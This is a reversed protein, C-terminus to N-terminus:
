MLMQEIFELSTTCHFYASIHQKLHIAPHDTDPLELQDHDVQEESTLQFPGSGGIISHFSRSHTDAHGETLIVQDGTGVAAMSVVDGLPSVGLTHHGFDQALLGAIASSAAARHV